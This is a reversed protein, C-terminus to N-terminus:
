HTVFGGGWHKLRVYDGIHFQESEPALKLEVVDSEADNM